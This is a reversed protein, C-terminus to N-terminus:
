MRQLDFVGMSRNVMGDDDDGGGGDDDDAADYDADDEDDYDDGDDDRENPAWAFWPRARVPFSGIVYSLKLLRSRSPLEISSHKPLLPLVCYGALPHWFLATFLLCYLFLVKEPKTRNFGPVPYHQPVLSLAPFHHFQTCPHVHPSIHNPPGCPRTTKLEYPQLIHLQTTIHQVRQYIFM